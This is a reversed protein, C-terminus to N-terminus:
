SPVPGQEDKEANTGAEVQSIVPLKESLTAIETGKFVTIMGDAPPERRPCSYIRVRKSSMELPTLM